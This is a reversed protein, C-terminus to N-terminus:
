SLGLKLAPNLALYSKELEVARSKVMFGSKECTSASTVLILM